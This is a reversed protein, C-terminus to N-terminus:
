LLSLCICSRFTLLTRDIERRVEEPSCANVLQGFFANPVQDFRELLESAVKEENGQARGYMDDGQNALLMYQQDLLIMKAHNVMKKLVLDLYPHVDKKSEDQLYAVSGLEIQVKKVMLLRASASLIHTFGIENPALEQLVSDILSYM